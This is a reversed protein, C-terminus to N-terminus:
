ESGSDQPITQSAHISEGEEDDEASGHSSVDIYSGRPRVSKKPAQLTLVGHALTAKLKGADVSAENIAYRRQINQKKLVASGDMSKHERVASIFLVGNEISVRLNRSLVGPLDVKLLIRDSNEQFDAHPLAMQERMLQIERAHQQRQRLLLARLKGFRSRLIQQRQPDHPVSSPSMRSQEGADVNVPFGGEVAAATTATASTIPHMQMLMMENLEPRTSAAINMTELAGKV